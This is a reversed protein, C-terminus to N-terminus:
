LLADLEDVPNEASRRWGRFVHDKVRKLGPIWGQARLVKSISLSANRNFKAEEGHVAEIFIEHTTLFDRRTEAKEDCRTLWSIVADTWEHEGHREAAATKAETKRQATEMYLPEGPLTKVAHTAEAFLQNRAAKLGKFDIQGLGHTPECRVPWWRRGGTDDRLYTGDAGPNKTAIFISQRPYEETLRGYALRARDTRRTIFAKLADEDTKRLVEMEAMEIIWRGQMADITDRSHPDIPADSAWEGGLIACTASKGMDQAGELVLVHHFDIGPKMVRMVAACLVKRSVAVLYDPRGEDIAGLYDRLWTNLRPVGDWELGNLYERVPHFKFSYAVNMIAAEIDTLTAEFRYKTALHGKCMKLDTDSIGKYAPMRGHHWPAPSAFEVRNTFENLAFVAGLGSDPSRLYNLLNLFCRTVRKNPGATVWVMEQPAAPEFVAAPHANGAPKAAFKYANEIKTQLEDFNWPPVCKANWTGAMLKLTTAASLGLDRGRCAVKFANTDGNHGEISPEARDELYARFREQADADDRPTVAPFEKLKAVSPRTALAILAAPAAPNKGPTGQITEYPKGSDPHISGAGVVQRGASKFEIGPYAPVANVVEADQPKSLAIHLGGGGTRVVHADAPLGGVDRALRVLPQDGPAFARPDVDIVLDAPGLRVGYNISELEKEGYVGPPVDQWRKVLPIKGRLPILAAGAAIYARIAAIKPSLTGTKVPDSM